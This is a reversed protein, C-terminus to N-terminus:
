ASKVQATKGILPATIHSDRGEGSSICGTRGTLGLSPLCAECLRRGGPGGATALPTASHVFFFFAPPFRAPNRLRSLGPREALVRRSVSGANYAPLPRTRLTQVGSPTLQLAPLTWVSCHVPFWHAPDRGCQLYSLKAWVWTKRDMKFSFDMEHQKLAGIYPM